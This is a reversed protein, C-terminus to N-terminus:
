RLQWVASSHAPLEIRLGPGETVATGSGFLTATPSSEPVVASASGAGLNHAVLVRDNGWERLYALIQSGSDLPTINGKRLAISSRRATILNRYWSLLSDPDGTQAAVNDRALGPSYARWPAGTTFGGSSTWPMPTRKDEDVAIPGNDLGLEEGYYLFPTGPLTLLIAAANRLKGEDNGLVTAIRTQDHNTLFPTDIVDAPYLRLVERLTQRIGEANGRNVGEIIATALPFNFNMPMSSYYRALAAIGVTNEAVLMADPKVSRVEAALERLTQHTEATDAQGSEGPGTEVLYRTADLRYGDVGQAVWYRALRFMERKAEANRFNLDPMGSWFAGYYYAGNRPHWSPDNGGWPQKWGPNTASWIYWDRKPSSPSSASEIFWPHENSTHNAVFDIIVRIGRRHAEDLFRQFDANTGYDSEIIEYDTTDYGHYSPSQFIPMLWIGDIGLDTTTAPNGDNLYDLKSTLGNFDGIGDGNSDAFSRVFIEYFVAGRAWEDATQHPRTDARQRGGYVNTGACSLLLLISAAFVTTRM